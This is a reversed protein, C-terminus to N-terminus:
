NCDITMYNAIHSFTFTLGSNILSLSAKIMLPQDRKVLFAHSCSYFQQIEFHERQLNIAFDKNRQALEFVEHCGPPLM